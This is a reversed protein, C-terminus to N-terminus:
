RGRRSGRRPRERALRGGERHRHLLDLLLDDGLQVVGEGGVHALEVRQLLQASVHAGAQLRRGLCAHLALEAGGGDVLGHLVGRDVHRGRHDVALGVAQVVLELLVHALAAEGHVDIEAHELLRRLVDFLLEPRLGLVDDLAAEHELGDGLGLVQLHAVVLHELHDLAVGLRELRSGSCSM